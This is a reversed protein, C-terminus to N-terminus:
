SLNRTWSDFAALMHYLVTPLVKNLSSNYLMISPKKLQAAANKVIGM